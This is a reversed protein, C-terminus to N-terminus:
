LQAVAEHLSIGSERRYEQDLNRLLMRKTFERNYNCIEERIAEPYTYKHVMCGGACHWRTFCDRCKEYHHVNLGILRQFKDEDVTISGDANVRGYISDQYGVDDPAGIRSCVSIEGDPTITNDGPCFREILLNFNRYASCDLLMGHQAAYEHAEFFNDLYKKYFECVQEPTTLKEPDTVYEMMIERTGPFRTLVEEVMRKMLGVNDNTITARLQPRIGESIILDINAAVRDYNGRQLNQIDELIEFSVSVPIRYKKITDIIDRTFVSGNTVINIDIPAYGSQAAREQAYEIGFKVLDWSLLPEGGGLISIGLKQDVPMRQPDIFHDIAAKLTERTMVKNSRGQASYCYSCKFNCVNNPLLALRTYGDASRALPACKKRNDFDLLSEMVDAVGEQYVGSPEECYAQMDSLFNKTVILANDTFPSYAIAIEDRNKGFDEGVSIVFIDNKVLGPYNNQLGEQQM